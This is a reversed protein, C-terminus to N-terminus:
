VEGHDMVGEPGRRTIDLIEIVHHSLSEHLQVLLDGDKLIEPILDKLLEGIVVLGVEIREWLSTVQIQALDALGAIAKGLHNGSTM